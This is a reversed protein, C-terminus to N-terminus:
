KSYLSLDIFSAFDMENWARNRRRRRTSNDRKKPSSKLKKHSCSAFVHRNRRHRIVKPPSLPFDEMTIEDKTFSPVSYHTNVSTLSSEGNSCLRGRNSQRCKGNKGDLLDKISSKETDDAVLLIVGTDYEQLCDDTSSAAEKLFNM